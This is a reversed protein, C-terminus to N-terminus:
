LETIVATALPADRELSIAVLTPISAGIQAFYRFTNNSRPIKIFFVGIVSFGPFFVTYAIPSLKKVNQYRKTGCFVEDM